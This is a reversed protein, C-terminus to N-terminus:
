EDAKAYKGIKVYVKDDENYEIYGRSQWKRLTAKGDGTKGVSQRMSLFQQYTFEQPLSAILNCPGQNVSAEEAKIDAEIYDLFYRLKCWMDWQESWRVYQEIDKTWKYGNLIYLIMGKVYANVNARFSLRSYAVNDYELGRAKNELDLQRALKAAQPCYIEGSAANLRAIFPKLDAAYEDDYKGFVPIDTNDEPVIITNLNMRSLTGDYVANRFYKRAMAPTTSANCNWRLPANGDVSEAGVREQGVSACDYALKIYAFVSSGKTNGKIQELLEVEDVRMYIPKQGNADADTLRLVFAAHTVDTMLVQICIDTPRPKKKSGTPNQRKWEAERRRSESDREMIDALIFDIPKNICGKGSSMPAILLGFSYPSYIKGDIFRFTVGHLHSALAQWVGEAVTPYYIRPTRSLLLRHFKTLRKPMEPPSTFTGGTVNTIQAAKKADEIAKRTRYRIGKKEEKLAQAITQRWEAEPFDDYRPIIQELWQQNYNCIPALDVALQFTLSNRNGETPEKGGNFLKFYSTCINSYLIGDYEAPYIRSPEDATNVPTADASNVNATPCPTSEVKDVIIGHSPWNHEWVKYHKDGKVPMDPLDPKHAAMEVTERQWADADFHDAFLAPDLYILDSADASTTFLKRNSNKNNLDIETHLELAMECQAELVTKGWPRPFVIHAGYRASREIMAPHHKDIDAMLMSIIRDAETREDIDLVFYRSLRDSGKIAGNDLPHGQYMISLLHKKKSEDGARVASLIRLQKASNRLARYEIEDKILTAFEEGGKDKNKNIVYAM